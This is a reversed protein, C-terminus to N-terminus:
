AWTDCPNAITTITQTAEDVKRIADNSSDAIYLNGAADLAIGGPGALEASTAPGGDGSYGQSGNGVVTTMAGPLLAVQPALGMGTLGFRFTGLSTQIVLPVLRWGPYAPQFTLPVTCNTGAPITNSGGVACGGITGVGFEQKGGQSVPVSISNIILSSNISLLM